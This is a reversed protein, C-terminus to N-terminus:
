SHGHRHEEEYREELKTHCDRGIYWTLGYKDICKCLYRLRRNGCVQCYNFGPPMDSHKVDIVEVLRFPAHRYALDLKRQYLEKNTM